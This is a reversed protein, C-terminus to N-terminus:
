KENSDAYLASVINPTADGSTIIFVGIKNGSVRAIPNCVFTVGTNAPPVRTRSPVSIEAKLKETRYELEISVAPKLPVIALGIASSADLEDGDLLTSEIKSETPPPLRVNVARFVNVPLKLIWDDPFSKSLPSPEICFEDPNFTSPIKSIEPMVAVLVFTLAKLPDPAM